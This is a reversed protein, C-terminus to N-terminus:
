EAETVNIRYMARKGAAYEAAKSRQYGALELLRIASAYRGADIADKALRRCRTEQVAALRQARADQERSFRSCHRRIFDRTEETVQGPGADFGRRGDGSYVGGSSWLITGTTMIAHAVAAQRQTGRIKITM